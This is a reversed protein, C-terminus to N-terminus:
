GGPKRIASAKSSTRSEIRRLKSSFFPPECPLLQAAQGVADVAAPVLDSGLLLRDAPMDLRDRLDRRGAFGFRPIARSTLLLELLQDIAELARLLRDMLLHGSHHEAEEGPQEHSPDRHIPDFVIEIQLPPEAPGLAMLSPDMAVAVRPNPDNLFPRRQHVRQIRM